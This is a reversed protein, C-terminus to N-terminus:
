LSGGLSNSDSLCVYISIYLVYFQVNIFLDSCSLLVESALMECFQPQLMEFTYIGASPEAIVRRFSEETNDRIAKLFSSMFFTEVHM